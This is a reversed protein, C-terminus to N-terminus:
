RNKAVVEGDIQCGAGNGSRRDAGFVLKDPFQVEARTIKLWKRGTFIDGPL